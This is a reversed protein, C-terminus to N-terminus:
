LIGAEQLTMCEEASAPSPRGTTGEQVIIVSIRGYSDFESEDIIRAVQGPQINWYIRGKVENFDPSVRNGKPSENVSAGAGSTGQAPSNGEVPM